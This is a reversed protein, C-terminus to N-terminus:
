IGELRTICHAYSSLMEPHSQRIMNLLLEVCYTRALEIRQKNQVLREFFLGVQECVADVHGTRISVAIREYDQRLAYNLGGSGFIVDQNTIVSGEGLYFAYEVCGKADAYLEPLRDFTNENSIAISLKKKYYQQYVESIEELSSEIDEHEVSQILLLVDSKYITSICVQRLELLEEAINKLAFRELLSCDSQPRLILLQLKHADIHFLQRYREYDNQNYKATEISEALFREKMQPLASKWNEELQVVLRDRKERQRLKVMVQTLAETIDGEDCPKLIYHKVGYKMAKNAFEFEGYGSLVIFMVHPLKEHIASILELGNMEPMMIDTIVIDPNQEMIFSMAELGNQKAGIVQLGLEEWEIMRIIGERIIREDDVVVVSYM